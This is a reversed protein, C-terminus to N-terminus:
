VAFKRCSTRYWEEIAESPQPKGFLYGQGIECGMATLLQRETETEVGEAVVDLQLSEALANVTQVIALSQPDSSMKRVFSQDIKLKDLPFGALYSLSSYGTGFDDLAIAIGMERLQELAKCVPGSLEVFASETIELHLRKPPLGSLALAHKVDAVVDGRVLQIPAVNVAVTIEDPWDAAQHCAETLAWRGLECIFGNAEAVPIFAAPSVLGFKGNEWRLLAEAGALKGTRLDVQPQYQLFFEGKQLGGRMAHELERSHRQRKAAAPDYAKWGGGAIAKAEDLAHEAHEVWAGPDGDPQTVTCIGIRASVQVMSGALDFPLDFLSLIAKAAEDQTQIVDVQVVVTFVDAGLRAACVILDSQQLRCAISRLLDDGVNRGMTTNLVSFRHLGITLLHAKALQNGLHEIFGGRNLLGTLADHKALYQLREEYDRRATMDRIILSGVFRARNAEGDQNPREVPSITVTAELHKVAGNRNLQFQSTSSHVTENAEAHDAALKVIIDHLQRPIIQSLPGSPASDECLMLMSRTSKSEEFIMLDHDFAVVADTSDTVIKRLLRRLNRQEANALDAIFRSFDVKETLTLVVGLAVVMWCNATHIVVAHQVQLYLAIAEGSGIVLLAVAFSVYSRATRLGLAVAIVIAAFGLEWPRQDHEQLDRHQSLTEAALIHLMSGTLQGYIAVPFIDKLETAYAGIVISRGKLSDLDFDPSLFKALSIIPVSSPTISYDILRTGANADSRGLVAAVSQTPGDKTVDGLSFHRISGDEDLVVNASALWANEALIPIPRTSLASTQDGAILHQKFVPLIVGGGADGLAQALRRDADPNSPTSFDIDFFIDAANARVLRDIISAYITRPWPWTGVADLTQKDIALYVIKGSAERPAASFRWDLLAKDLAKGIPFAYGALSFSVIAGIMLLRVVRSTVSNAFENFAIPAKM